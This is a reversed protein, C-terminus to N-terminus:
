KTILNWLEVAVAGLRRGQVNHPVTVKPKEDAPPQRSIGLSKSAEDLAAQSAILAKLEPSTAPKLNSNALALEKMEGPLLRSVRENVEKELTFYDRSLKTRTEAVQERAARVPASEPSSWSPRAPLAANDARYKASDRALATGDVSFPSKSPTASIQAASTVSPTAM